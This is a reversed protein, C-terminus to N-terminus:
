YRKIQYYKMAGVILDKLAFTKKYGAVERSVRFTRGFAQLIQLEM